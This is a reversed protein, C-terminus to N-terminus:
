PGRRTMTGAMAIKPVATAESPNHGRIQKVEVPCEDHQAYNVVSGRLHAVAARNGRPEVIAAARKGPLGANPFVRVKAAM